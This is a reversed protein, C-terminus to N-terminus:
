QLELDNIPLWKTPPNLGESWGYLEASRTSSLFVCYASDNFGLGHGGMLVPYLTLWQLRILLGYVLFRFLVSEKRIYCQAFQRHLRIGHLHPWRDEFRAAYGKVVIRSLLCVSLAAAM